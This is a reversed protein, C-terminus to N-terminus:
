CKGKEEEDDKEEEKITDFTEVKVKKKNPSMIGQRFKEMVNEQCEILLSGQFM